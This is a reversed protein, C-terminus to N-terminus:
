NEAHGLGGGVGDKVAAAEENAFGETAQGVAEAGAEAEKAEEGQQEAGMAVGPPSDGKGEVPGAEDEEVGDAGEVVGEPTGFFFEVAPLAHVVDGDEQEEGAGIGGEAQDAQAPRPAPAEAPGDSSERYEADDAAAGPVSEGVPHADEEIGDDAPQGNEGGFGEAVGEGGGAEAPEKGAAQEVGSAAENEGGVAGMEPRAAEVGVVEPVEEDEGGAGAVVDDHEAVDGGDRM